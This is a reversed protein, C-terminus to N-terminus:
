MRETNQVTNHEPKYLLYMYNCIKAKLNYTANSKSFRINWLFYLNVYFQLDISSDSWFAVVQMSM